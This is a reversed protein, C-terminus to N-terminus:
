RQILLKKFYQKEPSVIRVFYIGTELRSLDKQIRITGNHNELIESHVKQGSPTYIDMQFKGSESIYFDTIGSSPNPAIRLNSERIKSIGSVSMIINEVADDAIELEGTFEVMSQAKATYHHTGAPVNEFVATGEADTSITQHAFHIEANAIPNNGDSVNFRVTYADVCTIGAVWGSESVYTDSTFNFTLAGEPNSASINELQQPTTSGCFTGILDSSSSSGNYIKLEDWCGGEDNLEVNFQQFKFNLMKGSQAPYFTMTYSENNEYPNDAGGSDYFTGSCVTLEGEADINYLPVLGITLDQQVTSTYQQTDGSFVKLELTIQTELPTDTKASAGFNFDYSAGAAINVPGDNTNNAVLYNEPNEKLALEAYFAADASGTNTVTFNINGTEGPDLRTDNNDDDTIFLQDVKTEPSNIIISIKSEWQQDGSIATINLEAAHKDPANNAIQITFTESADATAFNGAINGFSLNDNNSISVVYEDNTTVSASVNGAEQKGVNILTLLVDGNEGYNISTQGNIDYGDAIIYPGEPTEIPLEAIYTIKNYGTVALTLLDNPAIGQTSLTAQSNIVKATSILKGNASLSVQAGEADVSVVFESSGYILSESHSVNMTEPNDTRLLLSPDGFCTWTDTMAFDGYTDNMYHCGDISIGAFSRKINNQYSETLIDVMEDQAAMPPEWSQNITSAMIAMAGAPQGNHTARLWNEAFCTYDVFYGNVCAVSWIFPLKNINNLQNINNSNFGSTGWSSQSGHGTYNIIGTGTNIAESVMSATPYGSADNGGQSGEFFELSETYSYALLDEALNRYHEYDYEGADGPGEQSAIGTSINLWGPAIASGKEYNIVRQVQTNIDEATEASFRGVFFDLYHDDGAVYAYANDSDGGLDAGSNTPIHEADGALLLYALGKTHYYNEVFSKIAEPTSGAESAAVLETKRGITNKWDAFVQMEDVWEDHCIILMNGNETLPTYKTQEYNLFRNKYLLDFENEVSFVESKQTLSNKGPKDNGSIKVIIESYIRLVKKVPNYRFPYVHITQGRFDRMIYPENLKTLETPFFEDKEYVKARSYPVDAPNVNRLLNGKSPAIEINDIETYKSHIIRAETGYDNPIIIAESFKLLDPAGKKLLPSLGEALILQNPGEKTETTHFEYENLTFKIVTEDKNSSILQATNQQAKLLSTSALLLFLFFFFQKM